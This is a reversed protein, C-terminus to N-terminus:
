LTPLLGLLVETIGQFFTLIKIAQEIAWAKLRDQWTPVPPTVIVHGAVVSVVGANIDLLDYEMTTDNCIEVQSAAYFTYATDRYNDWQAAGIELQCDMETGDENYGTYEPSVEVTVYALPLKEQHLISTDTVMFNFTNLYMDVVDAGFLQYGAFAQVEASPTIATITMLNADFAQGILTINMGVLIYEAEACLESTYDSVLYVPIDYVGGAEVHTNESAFIIQGETQTPFDPLLIGTNEEEGEAFATVGLTFVMLAALLIALIKKM